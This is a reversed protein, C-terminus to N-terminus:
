SRGGNPSISGQTIATDERLARSLHRSEKLLLSRTNLFTKSYEGCTDLQPARSEEEPSRKVEENAKERGASTENNQDSFYGDAKPVTNEVKGFSGCTADVEGRENRTIDYYLPLVVQNAGIQKLREAIRDFEM